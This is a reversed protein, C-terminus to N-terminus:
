RCWSATHITLLSNGASGPMSSNVLSSEVPGTRTICLRQGALLWQWLPCGRCQVAQKLNESPTVHNGLTSGPCVLHTSVQKLVLIKSFFNALMLFHKQKADFRIKQHSNTRINQLSHQSYITNAFIGFCAFIFRILDM